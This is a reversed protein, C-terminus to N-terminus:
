ASRRRPALLPERRARCRPPRHSPCRHRPAAQRRPPRAIAFEEDLAPSDAGARAKVSRRPNADGGGIELRRLRHAERIGERRQPLARTPARVGASGYSPPSVLLNATPFATALAPDILQPVFARMWRYRERATDILCRRRSSAPSRSTASSAASASPDSAGSRRTASSARTASDRRARPGTQRVPARPRARARRQRRRRPAPARRARTSVRRGARRGADRRTTTRAACGGAATAATAIPSLTNVGAGRGLAEM